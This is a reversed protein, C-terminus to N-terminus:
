SASSLKCSFIILRTRSACLNAALKNGGRCLLSISVAYNKSNSWVTLNRKPQSTPLCLSDQFRQKETVCASHEPQNLINIICHQPAGQLQIKYRQQRITVTKGTEKKKEEFDKDAWPIDPPSFKGSPDASLAFNPLLALKPAIEYVKEYWIRFTCPWHKGLRTINQLWILGGFAKQKLYFFPPQSRIQFSYLYQRWPSLLQLMHSAWCYSLNNRCVARQPHAQGKAVLQYLTQISSCDSCQILIIDTHHLVSRKM